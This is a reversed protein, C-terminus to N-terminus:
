LARLVVQNWAPSLQALRNGLLQMLHRAFRPSTQVLSNFRVQDIAVLRCATRAVATLARPARDVLASEGLIEGPGAQRVSTEAEWLDVAGEAVLYVEDSAEGEHFIVDGPGFALVAPESRMSAESHIRM